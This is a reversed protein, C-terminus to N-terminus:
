RYNPHFTGIETKRHRIIYEVVDEGRRYETPEDAQIRAFSAEVEFRLQHYTAAKKHAYAARAPTTSGEALAAWTEAMKSFSDVCRVFEVLKIEWQERWREMEAEARFWHVRDGLPLLSPNPSPKPSYSCALTGEEEWAKIEEASLNGISGLRWIWGDEINVVKAADIATQPAKPM